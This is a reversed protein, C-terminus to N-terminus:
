NDRLAQVPDTRTARVGPLLSAALSVLTMVLFALGFAAPDRPSVKYLLDGMLRTLGLAITAGTAIGAFTLGLGQTMVIRLLNGPSAGLAMRLGLERTSQSVAYSTVCYLGIGALLLAISGFIALLTVTARQSWSRRDVQERLTIVEGPALNADIARVERVLTNALAEPGLRTRIQFTQVGPAGQRLPTYFFPKATELLSFYKANRAVGVVQLWRGNVQLRKGVPNEGRWFRLMMTENVVAVPQSTENDAVTFERGSLLPIGLTSLYGPGVDNYDVKTQEGAEPVFGDVVIAASAYGRLSFPVTRSWVISRVGGIRQVRDSLQDQFNRMRPEDYGAGVMDVGSTLVDKTSFGLDTDQRAQLSKLLLGVGVLLIFSLSVQVLVLSSRIWARGRGGVVGGSESKMAAALDVNSAQMAPVLGFLVTSVLCVGASLALVRWDMQSPLNVVIGAPMPAFMLKILNRCWYTLLFGGAAAGVSLLLGETLLQRLLRRRGAGLSLRVTMEHRRAIARVLLLNGVNACAILLVLSAVVLSIRLTPFLTGANNFPTQWLPYLKFGYGRNTVPYVAELRKGTASIEAQAQDISVGPKLFAFGEIWRAGRDELKYGRGEFAEEMSAPVWFTFSYGVFTGFFGEPVVGIITYEVGNLRQTKGIIAPDGRYRLKWAQYSIVVVPHANRGTDERPDFTRGLIPRIGLAEFYNSSVVSGTASEAHEGISLTAGGIHEAIFADFLTSSRRLDQLDPWSVDTRGNRDMGIIAVMREQNAVLPFPRLLIGEIWSFVSTTAGIGLSLCLFALFSVGPSRRLMRIGFLLDQFM